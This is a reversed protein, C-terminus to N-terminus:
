ASEITQFADLFVNESRKFTISCIYTRFIFCFEMHKIIFRVFDLFVDRSVLLIRICSVRGTRVVAYRKSFNLNHDFDIKESNQQYQLHLIYM